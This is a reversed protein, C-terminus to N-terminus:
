SGSQSFHQYDQASQWEGGWSWGISEFAQVVEDGSRILSPHDATRDAYPAGTPPDVTDGQVYPNYLPNIDIARGFSHQSWETTGAVFRCNFASTNNAAMSVDDDAAFVDVLDMREIQYRAEFLLRFAEQIDAVVDDHVVLEGESVGDRLDHHTLRILRLDDLDVPCGERWSFTMRAATKEDIPHVSTEFVSSVPSTSTSTTTTSTSASTSTSATTTVTNGAETPPVAEQAAGGCSSLVLALVPGALLSKSSM